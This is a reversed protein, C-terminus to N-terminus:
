RNRVPSGKRGSRPRRVVELAHPQQQRRHRNLCTKGAHAGGGILFHIYPRSITFRDSTLTGTLQDKAVRKGKKNVFSHSNVFGQGIAGVDGQYDPLPRTNPRDGFAEGRVTWGAYTPKEFDEFITDIEVGGAVVLSPDFEPRMVALAALLYGAVPAAATRRANGVADRVLAEQEACIWDIEAIIKRREEPPDVCAVQFRSSQLFGKLAYYDRTSIADFKHDHCRACAVTQALFTKSFVDIQNDVRDAEDARVDVPSHKAEGLFWFGTGIISENFHEAPHTRPETLLDGAVHEIVFQNYPVDANFARIVYDRYEYAHPIEFDFEHGHTEAFRVLDLWHRGWREGYHPSDLLRNVVREFARPSEDALFADIEEPTPPLGILDYTVRRLLTRKDAPPAPSLGAAELKSLLFRDIPSQPWDKNHVAPPAPSQLSRFCWQEAKRAALDFEGDNGGGAPTRDAPWPAGRKVWETLLAIQEDPLKGKPPMKIDGDYNVAEILLSEAPKGPEIPPGNDGGQFAVTRSDLRLGGQQKDPGHCKQCSEVLLPRIKKEFFELDAPSPDAACVTWCVFLLALSIFLTSSKM